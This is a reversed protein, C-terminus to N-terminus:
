TVERSPPFTLLDARSHNPANLGSIPFQRMGCGLNVEGGTHRHNGLRCQPITVATLETALPRKTPAYREAVTVRMFRVRDRRLSLTM